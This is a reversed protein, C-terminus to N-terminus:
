SYRFVLDVDFKFLLAFGGGCLRARGTHEQVFEETELLLVFNGLLVGGHM